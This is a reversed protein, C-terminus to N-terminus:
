GTDDWTPRSDVYAILLGALVGLILLIKQMSAKRENGFAFGVIPATGFREIAQREAETLDLGHRQGEEVAELLHDAIELMIKPDSLGRRRLDHELMLLYGKIPNEKM